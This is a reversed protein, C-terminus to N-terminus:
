RLCYELREWMEDMDHEGVDGLLPLACIRAVGVRGRGRRM